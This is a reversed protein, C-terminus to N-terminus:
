YESFRSDMASLYQEKTYIPKFNDIIKHAQVANGALLDVITALMAKASTLVASNFDVM